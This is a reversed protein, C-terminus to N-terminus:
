FPVQTEGTGTPTTHLTDTDKGTLEAYTLRKGNIQSMALEFRQQDNLGKRNNYRFVQEDVYRRLHFPEVAVYTGNLGRKLLSWFNEIGNTHVQGDVYTELHNVVEHAFKKELGQYGLWQDTYVKSGGFVENLIHKQLTERKTNSVVAARVKRLKRDLMGMVITKNVYKYPESTNSNVANLKLRRSKHMNKAKGGIFTEDVEVAGFGGIQDDPTQAGADRLAERVRQLMFWASKQTIGLGRALEYSSVGNKCNILLWVATMWKDLGIPSDEFITGVKVTFQKKCGKCFWLLRTKIFSHKDNGCRPCAIKKDPWRLNVAYVFAREPDSFYVIAQQLTKPADMFLVRSEFAKHTLYTLAM